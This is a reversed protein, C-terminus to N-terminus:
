GGVGGKMEHVQGQRPWPGEDWLPRSPLGDPYKREPEAPSNRCLRM